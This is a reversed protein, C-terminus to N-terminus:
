TLRRLVDTRFQPPAIGVYAPTRNGSKPINNDMRVEAEIPGDYWIVSDLVHREQTVLQDGDESVQRGGVSGRASDM